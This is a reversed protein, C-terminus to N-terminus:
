WQTFEGHHGKFLLNVGLFTFILVVFGIISMIASKRGRWGVALREHLLAAYFLWMVASWVEKPDWTWLRGWAAKAYVFGGALGITLLTFGAVICRYGTRDLRELSPLRRYFFGRQKTKIAREQLLYLMGAGAALAFAADGAFIVVVHFTVWLSRFEEGEPVTGAPFHVAALMALSAMPAAFVGLIRLPFGDRWQFVIFVGTLAWAALSLAQHMGFAPLTGARIAGIGILVTHAAFGAALLVFAAGHLRERQRLLYVLYLATSALYLALTLYTLANM